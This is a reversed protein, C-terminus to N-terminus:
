DQTELREHDPDPKRGTARLNGQLGHQAESGVALRLAVLLPEGIGHRLLAQGQWRSRRGSLLDDLPQDIGLLYDNIPHGLCSHGAHGSLRDWAPNLFTLHGQDDTLCVADDIEQVLERYRLESVQLEDRARRQGSLDIDICYMEQQGRSNSLMVHSSFVWILSGDKRQLQLEAAPIMAGGLHWNQIAAIVQRREPEPVILEELHRGLAEQLSYGYLQESAQNWFIVRRERDYGQVAIRPTQEFLQRFRQESERLAQEDRKQSSINQITGLAHGPRDTEGHLQLWHEPRGQPQQLRLNLHMPVQEQLLALLLRRATSRDSPHILALVQDLHRPAADESQGLLELAEEGWSFQGDYEWSGLAANRQAQQLMRTRLRLTTLLQAQQSLAHRALVYILLGSLLVFLLGKATQWAAAREPDGVLALLAHDSFFIWLASFAAYLVSLYLPQALKSPM